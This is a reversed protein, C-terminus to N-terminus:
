FGFSLLSRRTEKERNSVIRFVIRDFAILAASQVGRQRDITWINRIAFVPDIGDIVNNEVTLEM